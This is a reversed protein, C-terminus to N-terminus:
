KFNPNSFEIQVQAGQDNFITLAGNLQKALMQVLKLGLSKPNEIDLEPPFGRGNDQYDLQYITPATKKLQIKISPEPQEAFAYKFSNTVLENIILGIRIATDGDTEVEDAALNIIPPTTEFPYTNRLNGCLEKLYTEINITTNENLYLKRHLLSIAEIRNEGEKVAQQAELNKLRAGQLQMLSSIFNLNNKVRHSLEKHLLEIKENKKELVIAQKKKRRFALWSFGAITAAFLALITIYSKSQRTELLDNEKQQLILQQALSDQLKEQSFQYTLEMEKIEEIKRKNLISDQAVKTAKHFTLALQHNGILENLEFLRQTIGQLMNLEGTEKWTVYAKNYYKKATKYNKIAKYYDGKAQNVEAAFNPEDIIPVVRDIENMYFLTSDLNEAKLYFSALQNAANAIGYKFASKEAYHISSWLTQLFSTTDNRGLLYSEALNNSWQSVALFNGNKLQMDIYAEYPAIVKEHDGMSWYIYGIILNPYRTKQDEQPMREWLEMAQQAYELAEQHKTQRTSNASLLRVGDYQYKIINNKKALRIIEEADAISREFERSLEYYESRRYLMRILNIEDKENKYINIAQNLHFTSRDDANLSRNWFHYCYYHYEAMVSSDGLQDGISRIKELNIKASDLQNELIQKKTIRKLEELNPNGGAQGLVLDSFSFIIVFSLITSLKM